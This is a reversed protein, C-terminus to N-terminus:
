PRATLGFSLTWANETTTLGARRSSRMGTIDIVVRGNAFPSGAGISFTKENVPSSDAEFPLTRWRFGTRLSLARGAFRPGAIDAGISSDWANHAPSHGTGLSGLSSWDDYSTRAAITTGALGTYAASLGVRRPVSAKSILTDGRTARLRGDTRYSAAVMGYKGVKAEIGASLARGSYSVIATDGFDGFSATDSFQQLLTIDNSGSFVHVGLGVHLWSSVSYAGAIRLDNMAGEVRQTTTTGVPGGAIIQTDTVVTAWSQDLFTSSSIGVFGRSRIPLAAIIVPYRQTTTIDTGGPSHVRRFEPEIQFYLTTTGFDLLTAPNRPSWPDIEGTASGAGLSRTSFQGPPFGFGQTSLTGQARLSDPALSSLALAAVLTAPFFRRM